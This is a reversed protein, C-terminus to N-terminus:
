KVKIKAFRHKGLKLVQGDKPEVEQAPDLVTKYDIDFAKQEILRRAESLSVNFAISALSATGLSQNDVYVIPANSPLSDGRLIHIKNFEDAAKQAASSNHYLAVIEQALRKKAEYPGKQQAEKIKENSLPTCLEFYSSILNDPVSMVKGYMAIPDETLGIFNGSTKSMKDKGDLGIVLPTMLIDQEKQGFRKQM